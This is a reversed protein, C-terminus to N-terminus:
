EDEFMAQAEPIIPGDDDQENSIDEPPHISLQPNEGHKIINFIDQMKYYVWRDKSLYKRWNTPLENCTILIKPRRFRTKKYKYRRDSARGGKITEVMACIHPWGKANVARPLDWMIIYQKDPQDVVQEYVTEMLEKPNHIYHDIIIGNHHIEVHEQLISKGTSGIEDQILLVQRDNQSLVKSLIWKQHPHLQLNAYEPQVYAKKDKDTWPGSEPSDFRKSPDQCYFESAGEGNKSEVSLHFGKFGLAVQFRALATAATVQSKLQGRGQWHLYGDKGRELQFTFKVCITSLKAVLDDKTIQNYPITFAFRRLRPTKSKPM